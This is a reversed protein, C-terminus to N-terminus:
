NNLKGFSSKESQVYHAFGIKRCIKGRQVQHLAVMLIVWNRIMYTHVYKVNM